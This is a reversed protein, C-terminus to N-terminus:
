ARFAHLLELLRIVVPLVRSVCVASWARVPLARFVCRHTPLRPTSGRIAPSQATPPIPGWVLTPHTPRFIPVRPVSRSELWRGTGLLASPACVRSTASGVTASTTATRQIRGVWAPILPMQRFIRAARVLLAGTWHIRGPLVTLVCVLRFRYTNALRATGVYPLVLMRSHGTGVRSAHELSLMSELLARLVCLLWHSPSTEPGVPLASPLELRHLHAQLAARACVVRLTSGPRVIRALVRGLSRFSIWLARLVIRRM